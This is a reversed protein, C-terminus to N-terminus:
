IMLNRLRENAVDHIARLDDDSAGQLDEDEYVDCFEMGDELFYNVLRYAHAEIEHTKMMVEQLLGQAM